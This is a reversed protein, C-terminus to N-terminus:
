ADEEPPLAYPFRTDTISSRAPWPDLRDLASPETARVDYYAGARTVITPSEDAYVSM